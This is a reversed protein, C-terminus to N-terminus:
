RMRERAFHFAALLAVGIITMLAGLGFNSLNLEDHHEVGRSVVAVDAAHVDVLGEHESCAQNFTGRVQLTTGTVGYRGFRDIQEAQESTMYVSLNSDSGPAISEVTIWCYKGAADATIGDGIAEGVFQVIRGDQFSPEALIDEITTDYIFSNDARQTPDVINTENTDVSTASTTMQSTSDGTSGDDEAHAIAPLCFTLMLALAISCALMRPTRSSAPFLSPATTSCATM